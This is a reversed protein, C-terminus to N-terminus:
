DRIKREQIGIIKLGDNEQQLRLVNETAGSAREQGNSVRYRMRFRVTVRNGSSSVFQPSGVLTFERNPWRRYYSMQDQAVFQRSVRGSDFYDIRDAYFSVEEDPRQGQAVRLYSQVFSAVEAPPLEDSSRDPSGPPIARPAVTRPPTSPAPEAVPARRAQAPVPAEGRERAELNHLFERDSIEAQFARERASPPSPDAGAARPTAATVRTLAQLTETDTEGTVKLDHRIQFRKLASHTEEDVKGTPEAYYFGLHRLSRQVSSM